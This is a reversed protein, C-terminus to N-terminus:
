VPKPANVGFFLSGFMPKRREREEREREREREQKWIGMLEGQGGWEAVECSKELVIEAVIKMERGRKLFYIFLGLRENFDLNRVSEVMVIINHVFGLFDKMWKSEHINSQRRRWVIQMKKKTHREYIITASKPTSKSM